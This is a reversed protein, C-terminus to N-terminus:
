RAPRRCEWTVHQFTPEIGLAREQASTTVAELDDIRAHRVMDALDFEGRQPEGSPHGGRLLEYFSGPVLVQTEFGVARLQETLDWGFNFFVPTNDAHFEPTTPVATEGRTLPIQLYMRGGPAIVRFLEAIARDTEPVHELVHATLVLDLAADDLDIQQLDLQLDARHASLDFDSARYDFWRRMWQRYEPGLRPSTELVRAGRWKPTRQSFCWFLFRDRAISDCSPCNASEVHTTGAFASGHWRCIPCTAGSEHLGIPKWPAATTHWWADDSAALGVRRALPRLADKADAPVASSVRRLAPRIASPLPMLGLTGIAHPRM